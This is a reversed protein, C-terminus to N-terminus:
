PFNLAFFPAGPPVKAERVEHIFGKEKAFELGKTEGQHFLTRVDAESLTTRESMIASMRAELSRFRDVTEQLQTWTLTTGQGFTWTIGHLLFSSHPTAYRHDAALFVMNAVSDVSGTNHMIIPVPLARLYHYLAIGADVSGGSSSFLFYLQEPSTQAIAQACAEMLSRSKQDSIGDYYSLFTTKPV